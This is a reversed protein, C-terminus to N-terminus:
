RSRPAAWPTRTGARAGRPRRWPRLGLSLLLAGCLAGTGPEPVAYVRVYDVVMRAASESRSGYGGVPIRDLISDEVESSLILYESRQSIPGASADWILAGDYHFRLATPTWELAYTHFGDGLGPIAELHNAFEHDAGYGNWHLAGHWIPLSAVSSFLDHEVIDMEVGARAPDGIFSGMEPSQLWFASWM